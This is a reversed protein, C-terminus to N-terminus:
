YIDDLFPVKKGWIFSCHGADYYKLWVKKSNVLMKALINVDHPTCM